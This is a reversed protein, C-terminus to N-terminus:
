NRTTSSRRDAPTSPPLLTARSRRPSTWPRSPPKEEKSGPEPPGETYAADPLSNQRPLTRRDDQCPSSLTLAVSLFAPLLGLSPLSPPLQRLERLVEVEGADIAAPSRRPLAAAWLLARPARQLTLPPPSPTPHHSPPTPATTAKYLRLLALSPRRAAAEALGALPVTAALPLSDLPRAPERPTLSPYSSALTKGLRPRADLRRAVPARADDRAPPHGPHARKHGSNRTPKTAPWQASNSPFPSTWPTWFSTPHPGSHPPSPHHTHCWTGAM